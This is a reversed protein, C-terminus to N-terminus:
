TIVYTCMHMYMNKFACVLDQTEEVVLHYMMVTAYDHTRVIVSDHFKYGEEM